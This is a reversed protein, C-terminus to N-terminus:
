CAADYQRMIDASIRGRESVKLGAARAWGARRQPGCTLWLAAPAVAAAAARRRGAEIFPALARKLRTGPVGVPGSIWSLGPSSALRAPASDHGQGIMSSAAQRATAM